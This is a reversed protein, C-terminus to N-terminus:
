GAENRFEYCQAGVAFQCRALQLAAVEEVIQSAFEPKMHTVFWAVDRQLKRTETLFHQPTLHQSIDALWQLTNPFSIELFVARLNAVASLFEWIGDCPGTDAVVAVADSRDQVVYGLTPITHQVDFATVRTDGLQITQGAAIPRLDVFPTAVQAIRFIDPWIRDNFVHQKLDAITSASAYVTICDATWTYVNELLLPLTAIHDTHSHSLFVTTLKKQEALPLLALAGADIALQEDVVYSILNSQRRSASESGDVVTVRM